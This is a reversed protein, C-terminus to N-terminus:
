KREDKLLLQFGTQIMQISQQKSFGINNTCIQTSLNKRILADQSNEKNRNHLSEFRNVTEM